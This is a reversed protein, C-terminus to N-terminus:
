QSLHAEFEARLQRQYKLPDIKKNTWIGRLEDWLEKKTKLKKNRTNPYEQSHIYILFDELSLGRRALVQEIQKKMEKIQM